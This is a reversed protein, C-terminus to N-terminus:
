IAERQRGRRDQNPKQKQFNQEKRPKRHPGDIPKRRPHGCPDRLLRREGAGCGYHSDICGMWEAAVQHFFGTEPELIRDLADFLPEEIQLERRTAKLGAEGRRRRRAGRSGGEM